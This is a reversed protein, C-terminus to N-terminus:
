PLSGSFINKVTLLDNLAKRQYSVISYQMFMILVVVGYYFLLAFM